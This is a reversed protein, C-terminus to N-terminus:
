LRVRIEKRGRGDRGGMRGGERWRERKGDRGGERRGREKLTVLRAGRGKGERSEEM